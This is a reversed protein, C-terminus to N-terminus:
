GYTLFDQEIKQKVTFRVKRVIYFFFGLETLEVSINLLWFPSSSNTSELMFKM